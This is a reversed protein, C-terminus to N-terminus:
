SSFIVLLLFSESVTLLQESESKTALMSGISGLMGVVNVRIQESPSGQGLACLKTLHQESMAQLICFNCKKKRM